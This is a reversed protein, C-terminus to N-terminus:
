DVHMGTLKIVGKKLSAIKRLLDRSDPAYGSEHVLQNRMKHAEWIEQYFDWAGFKDKANKLREGMTEGAVLDKLVADLTKDATIVAHRLHLSDKSKMLTGIESWDRKINQLTKGNVSSRFKRPRLWAFINIM